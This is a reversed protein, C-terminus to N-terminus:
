IKKTPSAGTEKLEEQLDRLAGEKMGAVGSRVLEVIEKENKAYSLEHRLKDLSRIKKDYTGSSFFSFIRSSMSQLKECHQDIVDKIECRLPFCGRYTEMGNRIEQVIEETSFLDIRNPNELITPTFGNNILERNLLLYLTRCNADSFPHFMEIEHVLEAIARLKLEKNGAAKRLNQHYQSIVGSVANELFDSALISVFESGGRVKEMIEDINLAPNQDHLLSQFFGGQTQIVIDFFRSTKPMSKQTRSNYIEYTVSKNKFKRLFEELGARTINIAGQRERGGGELRFTGAGLERFIGVDEKNLGRIEVDHLCRAHLRRILNTSLRENDIESLYQFAKEMAAIYGPEKEDFTLRGEEQRNGDIFLRWINNAEKNPTTSIGRPEEM